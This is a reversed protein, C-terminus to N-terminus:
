AIELTVQLLISLSHCQLLTIASNNDTIVTHVPKNQCKEEGTFVKLPLTCNSIESIQRKNRWESAPNSKARTQSVSDRM